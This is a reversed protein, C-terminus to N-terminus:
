DVGTTEALLRITQLEGCHTAEHEVLHYLCWEPTVDYAPLARVRRFDERSMTSFIRLLRARVADLLALHEALPCNEVVTLHGSADRVDDPFRAAIDPPIAQEVVETYLWDAEILAIHYLLTGVSNSAPVPAWDVAAPDLGILAEKTHQRVDDLMWLFRGIEPVAAHIPTILLARRNSM